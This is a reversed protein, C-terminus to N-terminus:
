DRRVVHLVPSEVAGLLGFFGGVADEPVELVLQRRGTSGLTEDLGPAAVVRVAELAPAAAGRRGARAEPVGSLVFVDVVSGETVSGPVLAPEVAVPLEVTRDDEPAGLAARPVLEGEGLPRTLVQDAPLEDDTTFYRELEGADAFRVREVVVDEATLQRGATLDGAATWVTVTDDAAALLRAGAVVSGAVIAVGVWLRPDRWGPPRSRLARPPELHPPVPAPSTVPRASHTGPGGLDTSM